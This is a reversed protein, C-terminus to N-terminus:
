CEKGVRREESRLQGIFDWTFDPFAGAKRDLEQARNEGVHTIGAAALAALDELEVYKVAAVIEVEARGIEARVQELNARVVDASLAVRGRGPSRFLTTYPFLTSRPPRRIM